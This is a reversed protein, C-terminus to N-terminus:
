QLNRVLRTNEGETITVVFTHMQGDTTRLGVTRRGARVRLSPIPTNKTTDRGDIFVRSWPNTNVTLTGFGSAQAASSEEQESEPQPRQEEESDMQTPRPSQPHRQQVRKNQFRPQPRLTAKAVRTTRTEQPPESSGTPSETSEESKPQAQTDGSTGENENAMTPIQPPSPVRNLPIGIRLIKNPEVTVTRRAPEFGEALIELDYRGPKLQERRFPVTGLPEGNIRVQAEVMPSTEIELTGAGPGSFVYGLGSGVSILLVALLAFLIGRSKSPGQDLVATPVPHAVPVGPAVPAMPARPSPGAEGKAAPTSRATPEPRDKSASAPPISSTAAPPPASIEQSESSFFIQTPADPLEPQVDDGLVGGEDDFPSPSVITEEDFDDDDFGPHKDAM